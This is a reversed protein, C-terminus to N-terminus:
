APNSITLLRDPQLRDRGAGSIRNAGQGNTLSEEGATSAERSTAPRVYALLFEALADDWDVPEADQDVVVEFRELLDGDLAQVM